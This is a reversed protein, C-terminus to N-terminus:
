RRWEYFVQVEGQETQIIRRIKGSRIATDIVIDLKKADVDRWIISMLKQESIKKNKEVLSLVLDVDSTYDSRGVSRFADEMTKELEILYGLVIEIIDWSINRDNCLSAKIIMSLKLVFTSKRDYWYSFAEDLCIRKHSEEEYWKTYLKEAKADLFYTGAIGAIELYDQILSEKLTPCPNKPIAVLQKKEKACIFLIRSSFGGGIASSPISSALSVATTAGLLNICVNPAENNGCHKTRYRFPLESCDYLDTLMVLMKTNDKKQGLFTEFERSIITISSHRYSTNDPLISDSASAEIDTILAERSIADASTIIGAASIFDRGYEIATSKRSAPPGVLVCYLNPYIKLRGIRLHAKRRLAAAIVSIATWKAYLSPVETDSIYKCFGDIWNDLQRTM